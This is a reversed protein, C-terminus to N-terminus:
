FYIFLFNLLAKHIDTILVPILSFFQWDFSDWGTEVSYQEEAYIIRIHIL